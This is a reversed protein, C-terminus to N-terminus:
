SYLSGSMICIFHLFGSRDLFLSLWICKEVKGCVSDLVGEMRGLQKRHAKQSFSKIM